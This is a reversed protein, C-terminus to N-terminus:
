GRELTNTVPSLPLYTQAPTSQRNILRPYTHVLTVIQRTCSASNALSFFACTCMSRARDQLSAHHGARSVGVRNACWRAICVGCEVRRGTPPHEDFHSPQVRWCVEQIIKHRAIKIRAQCMACSPDWSDWHASPPAHSSHRADHCEMGRQGENTRRIMVEPQM